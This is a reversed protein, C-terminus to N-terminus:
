ECLRIELLSNDSYDKLLFFLLNFFKNYKSIKELM